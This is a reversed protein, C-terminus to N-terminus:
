GASILKQARDKQNPFLDAPVSPGGLKQSVMWRACAQHDGRCFSKKMLEATSPMGAMRDNFFICKATNPCDSM